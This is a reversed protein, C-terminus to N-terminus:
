VIYYPLMTGFKIPKQQKVENSYSPFKKTFTTKNLCDEHPNWFGSEPCEVCDRTNCPLEVGRRFFDSRLSRSVITLLKEKM